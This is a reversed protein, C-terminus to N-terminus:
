ESEEEAEVEEAWNLVATMPVHRIVEAGNRGKENYLFENGRGRRLTPVKSKYLRQNGAQEGQQIPAVLEVLTVNVAM